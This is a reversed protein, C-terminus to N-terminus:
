GLTQGSGSSTSAKGWLGPAGQEISRGLSASVGREVEEVTELISQLQHELDGMVM